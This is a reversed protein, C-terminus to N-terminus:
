GPNKNMLDCNSGSKGLPAGYCNVWRLIGFPDPHTVIDKLHFSMSCVIENVAKDEDWVSLNIKDSAM